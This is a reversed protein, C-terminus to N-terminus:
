PINVYSEQLYGAADGQSAAKKTYSIPASKDILIESAFQQGNSGSKRPVLSAANSKVANKRFHVM